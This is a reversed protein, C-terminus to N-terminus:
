GGSVTAVGTEGGGGEGARPTTFVRLLQVEAQTLPRGFVSEVLAAFNAGQPAQTTEVWDTSERLGYIPAGVPVDTSAALDRCSYVSGDPRCTVIQPVGQPPVRYVGPRVQRPSAVSSLSSLVNMKEFFDDGVAVVLARIEDAEEHSVIGNREPEALGALVRERTVEFEKEVRGYSEYVRRGSGGAACSFEGGGAEDCAIREPAPWAVTKSGDISFRAEGPNSSSLWDFLGFQNAALAGGALLLLTAAAVIALRWGRAPLGRAPLLDSHLERALHARRAALWATTPEISPPNLIQSSMPTGEM